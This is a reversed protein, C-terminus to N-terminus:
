RVRNNGIARLRPACAVSTLLHCSLTPVLTATAFSGMLMPTVLGRYFNLIRYFEVAFVLLLGQQMFMFVGTVNTAPKAGSTYPAHHESFSLAASFIIVLMVILSSSRNTKHVQYSTGPCRPSPTIRSLCRQEQM